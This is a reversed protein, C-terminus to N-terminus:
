CWDICTQAGGLGYIIAVGQTGYIIVAGPSVELLYQHCVHRCWDIRTEPKKSWHETALHHMADAYESLLSEDQVHARWTGALDGALICSVICYLIVILQTTLHHM